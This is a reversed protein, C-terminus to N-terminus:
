LDLSVGYHQKLIRSVDQLTADCEPVAGVYKSTVATDKVGSATILMVVKEGKEIKGEAMLKRVGALTTASASECYVGEM